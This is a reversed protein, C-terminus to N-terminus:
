GCLDVAALVLALAGIDLALTIVSVIAFGPTKRLQRFASRVDELFSAM